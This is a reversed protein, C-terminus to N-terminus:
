GQLTKKWYRLNKRLKLTTKAKVGIEKEGGRAHPLGVNKKKGKEREKRGEKKKKQV